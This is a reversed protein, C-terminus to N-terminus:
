FIFFSRICLISSIIIVSLTLIMGGTRGVSPGVVKLIGLPHIARGILLTVGLVHLLWEPAGEIEALAMLILAIPVYEIFNAHVRVRKLIFDNGGDGLNVQYKFRGNVVFLALGVYILGLIGAYLTIVM